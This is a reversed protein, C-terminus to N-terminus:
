SRLKVNEQLIYNFICPRIQPKNVHRSSGVNWSVESSRSLEANSWNMLTDMNKIM